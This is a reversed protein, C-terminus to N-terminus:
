IEKFNHNLVCQIEITMTNEFSITYAFCAQLYWLDDIKLIKVSSPKIYGLSYWYCFGPREYDTTNCFKSLQGQPPTFKYGISHKSVDLTMISAGGKYDVHSIPFFFNKQSPFNTQDSIICKYKSTVIKTPKFSYGRNDRIDGHFTVHNEDCPYSLVTKDTGDDSRYLGGGVDNFFVGMGNNTGVHLKVNDTENTDTMSLLPNSYKITTEGSIGVSGVINNDIGNASNKKIFNSDVYNKSTLTM